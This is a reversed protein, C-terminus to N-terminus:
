NLEARTRTTILTDLRAQTAVRHNKTIAMSRTLDQILHSFLVLHRIRQVLPKMMTVRLIISGPKISRYSPTAVFLCSQHHTQDRSDDPAISLRLTTFFPSFYIPSQFNQRKKNRYSETIRTVERRSTRKAEIKYSPNALNDLGSVAQILEIVDGVKLDALCDKNQTIYGFVSYRGDLVNANNPTLESEKLLWFVKKAMTMIGFANFPLKTQAKYLGLEQGVVCTM